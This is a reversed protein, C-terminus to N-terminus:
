NILKTSKKSSIVGRMLRNNAIIVSRRDDHASEAKLLLEKEEEIFSQLDRKYTLGGIILDQYKQLEEDTMARLEAVSKATLESFGVPAIPRKMPNIFVPPKPPVPLPESKRVPEVPKEQDRIVPHRRGPVVRRFFQGIAKLRDEERIVPYTPVPDVKRVPKVVERAQERVLPLGLRPAPEKRVAGAARMQEERFVAMMPHSPGPDNMKGSSSVVVKPKSLIIDRVLQMTERTRPTQNIHNEDQRRGIGSSPGPGGQQQPPQQQKRTNWPDKKWEDFPVPQLCKQFKNSPSDQRSINRVIEDSV